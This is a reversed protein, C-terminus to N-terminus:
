AAMKSAALKKMEDVVSSIVPSWDNLVTQRYPKVTPYWPQKLENYYRWDFDRRDLLYTKAGMAGALNALATDVTIMGDLHHLIAATDSFTKIGPNPMDESGDGTQLSVYAVGPVDLIPKLLDFPVSKKKHVDYNHPNYANVGTSWCIGIRPIGPENLPWFCSWESIKHPEARLYPGNWPVTDARTKCVFPLSMIPLHYDFELGSGNIVCEVSPFNHQVLALMSAPCEFLLKVGFDREVVPFYRVLLLIDGLGQESHILVRAPRCTV